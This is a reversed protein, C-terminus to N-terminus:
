GREGTDRNMAQALSAVTMGHHIEVEQKEVKTRVKKVRHDKNQSRVQQFMLNAMSIKLSLGKDVLVEPDGTHIYVGQNTFM